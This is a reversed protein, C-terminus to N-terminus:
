GIGTCAAAAMDAVICILPRAKSLWGDHLCCVLPRTKSGLCCLFAGCGQMLASCAEEPSGDAGRKRKATSDISSPARAAARRQIRKERLYQSPAGALVAISENQTRMALLGYAM